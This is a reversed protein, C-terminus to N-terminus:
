WTELHCSLCKTHQSVKLKAESSRISSCLLSTSISAQDFFTKSNLSSRNSIHDFFTEQLIFQVAKDQFRKKSQQLKKKKNQYKM